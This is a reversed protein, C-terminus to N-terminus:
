AAAKAFQARMQKGFERMKAIAGPSRAEMWSEFRSAAKEM